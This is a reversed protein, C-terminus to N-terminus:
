AIFSPPPAIGRVVELLRAHVEPLGALVGISGVKWPVGELDTVVGGSERILLVGAANDWVHPSFTITGGFAGAATSALDVGVSGSIRIARYADGVGSLLEQRWGRPFSGDGRAIVSGYAITVPRGERLSMQVKRGNVHTGGGAVATVRRRLFPMDIVGVIPQGDHVLALVIACAPYGAAYNTTGDIPDVVWVTNNTPVEGGYEEGYVPIGTMSTLISRLKNEITLDTETAFDGFEKVVFPESGLGGRFDAQVEDIAAEAIALLARPDLDSM